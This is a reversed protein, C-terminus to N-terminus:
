QRRMADGPRVLQKPVHTSGDALAHKIKRQPLPRVPDNIRLNKVTRRELFLPSPQLGSSVLVRGFEFNHVPPNPFPLRFPGITLWVWALSEGGDPPLSNVTYYDALAEALTIQGTEPVRTKTSKGNM